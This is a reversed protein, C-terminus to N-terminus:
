IKRKVSHLIDRKEQEENVVETLLKRELTSTILQELFSFKPCLERMEKLANFVNKAGEIEVKNFLQQIFVESSGNVVFAKLVDRVDNKELNEIMQAVCFLDKSQEILLKKILTKDVFPLLEEVVYVNTARLACLFMEKIAVVNQSKKVIPVIMECIPQCKNQAAMLIGNFGYEFIDSHPLLKEVLEANGYYVATRFPFSKDVGAVGKKILHDIYATDNQNVADVIRKIHTANLPKSASKYNSM